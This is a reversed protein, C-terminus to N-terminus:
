DEEAGDAAELMRRVDKITGAAKAMADECLEAATKGSMRGVLMVVLLPLNIGTIHYFDFHETLEVAVNFPTGHFLDSLVIIEDGEARSELEKRINELLVSRDDEPQLGYAVLGEQRGALMQASHVMGAAMNGHSVVVMKVM